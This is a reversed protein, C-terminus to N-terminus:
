FLHFFCFLCLTFTIANALYQWMVSLAVVNVFISSVVGCVIHRSLCIEYNTM